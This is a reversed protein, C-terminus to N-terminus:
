CASTSIVVLALALALAADAYRRRSHQATPECNKVLFKRDLTWRPYRASSIKKAAGVHHVCRMFQGPEALAERKRGLGSGTTSLRDHRLGSLALSGFMTRRRMLM